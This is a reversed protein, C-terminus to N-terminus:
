QSTTKAYQGIHTSTGKVSKHTTHTYSITAVASTSATKLKTPETNIAFIRRDRRPILEKIVQVFNENLCVYIFVNVWCNSFLFIECIDFDILYGPYIGNWYRNFKYIHLPLQFIAFASIIIVLMRLVSYNRKRKKESAIKSNKRDKHLVFAIRFYMWSTWALPLVYVLLFSVIILQKYTGIQNDPISCVHETTWQNHRWHCETVDNYIFTFPIAYIISSCWITAIHLFCTRKNAIYLSSTVTIRSFSFSIYTSIHM